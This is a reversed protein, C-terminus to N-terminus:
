LQFLPSFHHTNKNITEHLIHLLHGEDGIIPHDIVGQNTTEHVQIQVQFSAAVQQTLQPDYFDQEDGVQIANIDAFRQTLAERSVSHNTYRTLLQSLSDLLCLNNEGSASGTNFQENGITLIQDPVINRSNAVTQPTNPAKVETEPHQVSLMEVDSRSSIPITYGTDKVNSPSVKRLIYRKKASDWGKYQWLNGQQDKYQENASSRAKQDTMKNHDEKSFAQKLAFHTFEKVESKDGLQPLKGQSKDKSTFRTSITKIVGKKTSKRQEKATSQPRNSLTKDSSNVDAKQTEHSIIENINEPVDAIDHLRSSSAANSSTVEQSNPVDSMLNRIPMGVKVDVIFDELSKVGTTNLIKEELGEKSRIEKIIQKATKTYKPNKADQKVIIKQFSKLAIKGFFGQENHAAHSKILNEIKPTRLIEPEGFEDTMKGPSAKKGVAMKKNLLDWDKPLEEIRHPRISPPLFGMLDADSTFWDKRSALNPNLVLMIQGGAGKSGGGLKTKVQPTVIRTYVYYGGGKQTDQNERIGIEKVLTARSKLGENELITLLSESQTEHTFGLIQKFAIATRIEVELKKARETKEKADDIQEIDNIKQALDYRETFIKGYKKRIEACTTCSFIRGDKSVKIEHGDATKEKAVVGPEIEPADFHTSRKSQTTTEPAKGKADTTKAATQPADFRTNRDSKATTEPAKEETEPSKVIPAETGAETRSSPASVDGDSRSGRPVDAGHGFTFPSYYNEGSVFEIPRPKGQQIVFSVDRELKQYEEDGMRERNANIDHKILSQGNVTVEYTLKVAKLSPKGLRIDTELLPTVKLAINHSNMFKSVASEIAAMETNAGHSGAVLNVPSEAGGLSHGHMHLWEWDKEKAYDSASLYSANNDGKASKVAESGFYRAMVTGQQERKVPNNVANALVPKGEKIVGWAYDHMYADMTNKYNAIDQMTLQADTTRMSVNYGGSKGKGKPVFQWYDKGARSTNLFWRKGTSDVLWHRGKEDTNVTTSGKVKKPFEPFQKAKKSSDSTDAEKDIEEYRQKANEAKKQAKPEQQTESDVDTRECPSSCALVEGDKSVKFETGDTAKDEGVVGPKIEPEDYHTSRDSKAITEPEKGKTETAKAATEPADFYISRDSSTTMEPAKGETESSKVSSSSTGVPMLGGFSQYIDIIKPPYTKGYVLGLFVEAVFERPKMGYQSVEQQASLALSGEKFSTKWLGHFKSPTHSFHVAHGLEHVITAVGTPDLETSLNAFKSSDHMAKTSIPNNINASSIHIFDPAVYIARESSSGSVIEVQKNVSVKLQRGYKPLNVKMKPLTFGKAQVKEVAERFMQIRATYNVDTPDYTVEMDVGQITMNKTVNNSTINDRMDTFNSLEPYITKNTVSNINNNMIDEVDSRTLTSDITINGKQSLELQRLKYTSKDLETMKDIVPQTLSNDINRPRSLVDLTTDPKLERPAFSELAHSDDRKAYKDLEPELRRFTEYRPLAEAREKDKQEKRNSFDDLHKKVTSELQNVNNDRRSGRSGKTKRWAKIQELINNLNKINNDFDALAQRSSQYKQVARDLNKLADSRPHIISRKSEILWNTIINDPVPDCGNSARCFSGDEKEKLEHNNPLERQEVFEEDSTPKPEIKEAVEIETKWEEPTLENGRKPATNELIEQERLTMPVDTNPKLSRLTETGVKSRSGTPIDYTNRASSATAQSEKGETDTAKAATQATDFPTSRDRPTQAEEEPFGERVQNSDSPVGTDPKLGSFTETEINASSSPEATPADVRGSAFDANARSGASSGVGGGSPGPAAIASADPEILPQNKVRLEYAENAAAELQKYFSNNPNIRWVNLWVLIQNLVTDHEIHPKAQGYNLKEQIIKIQQPTFGSVKTMKNLLKIKNSIKNFLKSNSLKFKYKTTRGSSRLVNLNKNLEELNKLLVDFSKYNDQKLWYGQRAEENSIYGFENIEATPPETQQPVKFNVFDQQYKEQVTIHTLEHVLNGIREWEQKGKRGQYTIIYGLLNNLEDFKRVANGGQELTLNDGQTQQTFKYSLVLKHAEMVENIIKKMVSNEPLAKQFETLSTAASLKRMEQLENQLETAGQAKKNADQEEEIEGFRKELESNDKLEDEYEQRIEACTTCRIIRGDQLVKIEHGDDTKEKAVVGPENVPDIEPQDYHTSRQSPTTTEAAKVETESRQDDPTEVNRSGADTHGRSGGFASKIPSTLASGVQQGLQYGGTQTKEFGRAFKVLKSSGSRAQAREITQALKGPDLKALRTLEGPNMGTEQALANIEDPKMGSLNGVQDPHTNAFNALESRKAIGHLKATSVHVATGIALGLLIGEATIPEGTALNGVINGIADSVSEIGYQLFSKTIGAGLRGVLAGGLAGGFGGIAGGIAGALAAEGVGEMLNKGDIANNAIQSLAGLAAGLAAGVAVSAVATAILGGGLAGAVFGIALPAVFIAVVIVAIFVLAKLLKKWFPEEEVAKAAYNQIDTELCKLSERLGEELQTVSKQMAESFKQYIGEFPNQTIQELSTATTEVVKNVAQTYVDRLQNFTDTIGKNLNTFSTTAAEVVAGSEKIGIQAIAGVADVAQQEGQKIGSETAAIGKQTEGQVTAVSSDLQGLIEALTVSLEGPNPAEMGQFERYYDQLATQLKNAAQNVGKLLSAIAKQADREIALVQLDGYGQLIQLQATEQKDLSQLTDQLTQNVSKTLKTRVEGAQTTAKQRLDTVTKFAEEQYKQLQKRFEKVGCCIVKIDKTKGDVLNNAQKTAQETVQDKYQKAVERATDAKKQLKSNEDEETIQGSNVPTSRGQGIDEGGTDLHDYKHTMESEWQKAWKEGTATAEDGVKKGADIFQDFTQFYLNDIRALLDIEHQDVKQFANSYETQIRQNVEATRLFINILTAQYQQQIGAISVQAQNQVQTRQQNIQATVTDKQQQVTSMISAKATEAVGNIRASISQGLGTVTQVRLAAETFFNSAMSSATARQVETAAANNDTDTGKQKPLKFNIKRAALRVVEANTTELQEQANTASKTAETKEAVTKPSVAESTAPSNQKPAVVKTDPTPAPPYQVNEPPIGLKNSQPKKHHCIAPRKALKDRNPEIEPSEESDEDQEKESPCKQPQESPKDEPKPNNTNDVQDCNSDDSETNEQPTQPKNEEKPEPREQVAPGTDALAASRQITPREVQSISAEIEPTAEVTNDSERKAQLNVDQKEHECQSCARQVINDTSSKTAVAEGEGNPAHSITTATSPVKSQVAKGNQQVVHTLEHALLEQGQKSTPAYESSHLFIDQGTTFARAQISKNLQDSESGTHIRVGSFDAGFAREMRGRIPEPLPQGKGQAKQISTELDPTDAMEDASQRQLLPQMQALQNEQQGPQQQEEDCKSCARQVMGTESKLQVPEDEEEEPQPMEQRQITSIQPTKQIEKAEPKAPQMKESAEPQQSAPADMRQVVQHATRDAEQEYKDGVAGITLKTQVRSPQTSATPTGQKTQRAMQLVQNVYPNGYQQQWQLLLQQNSSKQNAPARNLIAAHASPNPSNGMRSIHQVLPDDPSSPISQANPTAAREVTATQQKLHLETNANTDQKPAHM